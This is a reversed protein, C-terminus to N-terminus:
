NGSSIQAALDTAFAPARLTLAEATVAVREEALWQGTTPAYWRVRYEGAQLGTLTVTVASLEPPEYQWDTLKEKNKIAAMVAKDYASQAEPVSYADSVLWLLAHDTRQLTLAQAAGGNVQGKGPTLKALDEDAFFRSITGYQAWQDQPDIFSDWWWYMSGGAYGVFPAGWLGIHLHLGDLAVQAGASYGLEGMLIPKDPAIKIIRGRDRDLTRLLNGGSYDHQQTFDIEPLTWVQTYTGNAHSNTRLHNYPDFERLVPTMAAIWPMLTEDGIGTWNVENWWEWAFLHTSYAWRAAIYRLRQKFYAQAVPDTVFAAPAALPGGLDDNYPNDAWEANVSTSFAGHNLLCLMLYIGREEAMQFVQDLLWAQKMRADYNGLGTDRWEIGFSWSAMWIRAVNGGNAALADFWREYDALVDGVSWGINLGNPLYPEGSDFAFYRSNAPHIRIFGPSTAPTVAVPVVASQAATGTLYAQATWQGAVPPTFRVRWGPEGMPAQTTADFPQMWFAPVVLEQGAPGSFRVRLDIQAPDYPNEVAVNTTLTLELLAFQAITAQQPPQLVVIEGNAGPTAPPIQEGRCAILPTLVLTLCCLLLLRNVLWHPLRM